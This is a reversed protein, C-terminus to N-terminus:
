EVVNVKNLVCGLVTAGVQMFLEKAKQIQEVKDQKRTIVLLIGDAKTGLGIADSVTDLPPVDLLIADYAKRAELLIDQMAPSLLVEAPNVVTSGATLVKLNNQIAPQIFNNYDGGENICDSLGRNQLGFITHQQPNHLDCDLVLVSKEAQAMAVALNAIVVSANSDSIGVVEIIKKTGLGALVNFCLARYADAIPGTPEKYTTINISEM